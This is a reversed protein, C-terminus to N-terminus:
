NLKIFEKLKTIVENNFYSIKHQKLFFFKFNNRAEYLDNIKIINQLKDNENTFVAGYVICNRYKLKACSAYYLAQEKVKKRAKTRKSRYNRGTQTFNIHKCEVVLIKNNKKFILDGTGFQYYNSIILYEQDILDWKNKVIKKKIKEQLIEEGSLKKTINM